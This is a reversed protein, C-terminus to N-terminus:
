VDELQFQRDAFDRAFREAANIGAETLLHGGDGSPEWNFQDDHLNQLRLWVGLPLGRYRRKLLSDLDTIGRNTMLTRIPLNSEKDSMRNLTRKYMCRGVACMTGKPTIYACRYDHLSRPNRRYYRITEILLRFAQDKQETTMSETM